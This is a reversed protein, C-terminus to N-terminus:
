RKRYYAATAGLGSADLMTGLSQRVFGDTSRFTTSSWGEVDPRGAKTSVIVRYECDSPWRGQKRIAYRIQETDVWFVGSGERWSYVIPLDWRGVLGNTTRDFVELVVTELHQSELWTSLGLELVKWQNGLKSPDLGSDRVIDQLCRLIGSTVQTVSHTYTNTTVFTSM